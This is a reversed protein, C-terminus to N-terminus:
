SFRLFTRVIKYNLKKFHDINKLTMIIITLYPPKTIKQTKRRQIM